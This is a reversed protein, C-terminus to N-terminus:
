APENPRAPALSRRDVWPPNEKILRCGTQVWVLGTTQGFPDSAVGCVVPASGEQDFVVHVEEHALTM